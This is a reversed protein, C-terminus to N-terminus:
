MLVGQRLCFLLCIIFYPFPLFMNIHNLLVHLHLLLDFLPKLLFIMIVNWTKRLDLASRTLNFPSFTVTTEFLPFFFRFL